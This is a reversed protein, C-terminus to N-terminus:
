LAVHVQNANFDAIFYKKHRNSVNHQARNIKVVEFNSSRPLQLVWRSDYTAALCASDPRRGPLPRTTSNKQPNQM